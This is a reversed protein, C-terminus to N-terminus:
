YGHTNQRERSRALMRSFIREANRSREHDFNDNQKQSDQSLKHQAIKQQLDKSKERESAEHAIQQQEQERALTQESEQKHQSDIRENISNLLFNARRSAMKVEM